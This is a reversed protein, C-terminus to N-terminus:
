EDSRLIMNEVVQKAQELEAKAEAQLQKAQQRIRSIREAIQNQKELPPLPIKLTNVVDKTLGTVTAGTIERKIQMNGFSSKLYSLLYIPNVNDKLRILFVHENINQNEHKKEHIIAIKGTTAGDKVLLLDNIKTTTILHKQHYEIPIYKAKSTDIYGDSSVHSGGFSLIGSVINGVGGTPRSGSELMQLLEKFFVYGGKEILSKEFDIYKSQYYEADFRGDAIESLKKTFIRATLSSDTPAPLDIELGALLYTDISNLLEQAEAEKSQKNQYATNMKAVIEAQINKPPIPIKLNKYEEANINPQAVTRQIANVWEKYFRLQMYNFIYDPNVKKSDIVFRILYGAFINNKNTEKHLYARGVSGSRALLLDNYNLLYQKEITNATKGLKNNKLLGNNDIDTIRIYRVEYKSKREVGSENAGYQPNCKLISGLSQSTYKLNQITKQYLSMTPDFRGELESFKTLFIKNPDVQKSLQFDSM